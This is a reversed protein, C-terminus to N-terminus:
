GYRLRFALHNAIVRAAKQSGVPGNFNIVTGGGGGGRAVESAQQVMVGGARNAYLREPGLENLVLGTWGGSAHKQPRQGFASYGPTLVSEQDPSPDIGSVGIRALEANVADVYSKYSTLQAELSATLVDLKAQEATTFAAVDADMRAQKDSAMQDELAARDNARQEIIGAAEVAADAELKDEDRLRKTAAIQEEADKLQKLAAEHVKGGSHAVLYQADSLATQNDADEKAMAAAKDEGRMKALEATAPGAAVLDETTKDFDKLTAANAADIAKGTTAEWNSRFKDVAENLKDAIESRLDSIAAKFNRVQDLGKVQVDIKSLAKARSAEKDFDKLAKTAEGLNGSSHTHRKQIQLHAIEDTL